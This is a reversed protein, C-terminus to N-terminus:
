QIEHCLSCDQRITAGNEALHLDDHCRFCGPFQSHGINNIYTGWAVKMVPFVNRRYASIAARVASEIDARREAAISPYQVRYFGLLRAEIAEAAAEHSGYSETVAAIAERRIFPLSAPMEGTEIVADIAREASPAFAHSPRNHCDVCDMVRREGRALDAEGVGEVKFERSNGDAYDIRVYPIEQRKDDTTVYTVRNAIHWHIGHPEPREGAGGVHLRMVTATETNAEDSAYERLTRIRDGTFKEPWHCQECTERAPRLNEVPSPIPRPYTDLMVAFVQRTGSLKAQVFWPAGPGIHCEVCAVRAHPSGHYATFQPTMVTHCVQGCFEVSDMYEIGRYAALSIVLLNAVTAAAVFGALRRRHQDNLDIVPWRAAGPARGRRVARRELWVGFPILLLGLVFLGPLLLFFVVGLYPNTFYGFIDFAFFALFLVASVTTLWIGFLGVPHRAIDRATFLM